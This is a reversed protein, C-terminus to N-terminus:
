ADRRDKSGAMVQFLRFAILIIGTTTAGQFWHAGAFLLILGAVLM